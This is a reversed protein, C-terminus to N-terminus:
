NMECFVVGTTASKGQLDVGVPDLEVATLVRNALAAIEEGGEQPSPIPNPTTRRPVATGFQVVGGWGEGVLPSPTWPITGFMLAVGTLDM